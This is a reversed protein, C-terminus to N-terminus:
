LKKICRFSTPALTKAANECSTSTAFEGIPRWDMHIKGPVIAVPPTAAVVTWIVLIYTLM